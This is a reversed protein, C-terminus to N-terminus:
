SRVEWRKELQRAAHGMLEPCASLYWYTDRVNGHGLYTALVPLLRAVDEGSRYWQLLSDMAFRHRFDHLRPGNRDGAGRLGTQRSLRYFTRRVISAELPRGHASVLFKTASQRDLYADRRQAYQRLVGRTSAHLPVLRSKNFKAGRITLIGEQLDVDRRELAILESIRLGTVTLLGFLCYYTWRRLGDGPPLAKAAAMLRHIEDDTYLYPQARRNPFPLLEMPPVETRPDIASWHRAFGRVCSLRQAWYAAQANSPQMSWKLALDITIHPAKERELFSALSGLDREVHYLRFGLGRRMMLYDNIGQRLTKM